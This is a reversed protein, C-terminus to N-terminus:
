AEDYKDAAVFKKFGAIRMREFVERDKIMAHVLPRSVLIFRLTLIDKNKGSVTVHADM